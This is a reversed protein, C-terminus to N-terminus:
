LAAIAQLLLPPATANKCTKIQMNRFKLINNNGGLLWVKKDRKQRLIKTTILSYFL